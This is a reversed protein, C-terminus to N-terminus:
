PTGETHGTIRATGCPWQHLCERCLRLTGFAGSQWNTPRHLSRLRSLMADLVDVDPEAPATM